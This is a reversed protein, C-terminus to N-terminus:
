RTLRKNLYLGSVVYALPSAARYRVYNGSPSFAKISDIPRLITKDPLVFRKFCKASVVGTCNVDKGITQNKELIGVDLGKRALLYATYSGVPGAGVVIVDHKKM